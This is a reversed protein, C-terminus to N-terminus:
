KKRRLMQFLIIGAGLCIASDALNFAPFHYQDWHFDLFDIVASYRIRDWVNGLAGGLIMALAFRTWKDKEQRIMYIVGLCIALAVGILLATGLESQASFMSFSVGSNYTLYLNFIPAVVVPRRATLYETALWKTLLDGAFVIISVLYIM